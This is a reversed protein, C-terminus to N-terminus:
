LGAFQLQITIMIKLFIHEYYVSCKKRFKSPTAWEINLGLTRFEETLNYTNYLPHFHFYAEDLKDKITENERVYIINLLERSSKVNEKKSLM